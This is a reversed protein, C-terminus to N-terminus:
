NLTFNDLSYLSCLIRIRNKKTEFIYWGNKNKAYCSYFFADFLSQAQVTERSNYYTNHTCLSFLPFVSRVICCVCEVGICMRAFMVYLVMCQMCVRMVLVLKSHNVITHRIVRYLRTSSIIM